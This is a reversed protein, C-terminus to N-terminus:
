FEYKVGVQASIPPQRYYIVYRNNASRYYGYYVTAYRNNTLNDLEATATLKGKRTPISQQLLVSLQWSPSRRGYTGMNEKLLSYGGGVSPVGPSYYYRSFPTGSYYYAAMGLKSTWPDNPIDWSGYVKVQHRIDTDLNGYALEVQAPNM